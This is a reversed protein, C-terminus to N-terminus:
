LSDLSPDDTILTVVIYDLILIRNIPFLQIDRGVVPVIRPELVVEVLPM